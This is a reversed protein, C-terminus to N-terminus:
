KSVSLPNFFSVSTSKTSLASDYRLGSPALYAGQIDDADTGEEPNGQEDTINKSGTSSRIPCRECGIVFHVTVGIM